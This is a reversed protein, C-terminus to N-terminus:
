RVPRCGSAEADEILPPWEGVELDIGVRRDLAITIEDDVDHHGDPFPHGALREAGVSAREHLQHGVFLLADHDTTPRVRGKRLGRTVEVAVVLGFPERM